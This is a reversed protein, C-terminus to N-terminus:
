NSLYFLHEIIPGVTTKGVSLTGPEYAHWVSSLSGEGAQNMQHMKYRKICSHAAAAVDRAARRESWLMRYLASQCHM